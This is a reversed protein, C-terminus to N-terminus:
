HISERCSPLNERNPGIPFVASVTHYKALLIAEPDACSRWNPSIGQKKGAFCPFCGSVPEGNVALVVVEKEAGYSQFDGFEPAGSTPPPNETNASFNYKRYAEKATRQRDHFWLGTGHRLLKNFRGFVNRRNDPRRIIDIEDLDHVTRRHALLREIMYAEFINKRVAEVAVHEGIQWGSALVM